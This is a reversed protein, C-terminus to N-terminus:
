ENESLQPQGGIWFQVIPMAIVAVLALLLTAVVLTVSSPARKLSRLIVPQRPKENM